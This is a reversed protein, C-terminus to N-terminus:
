GTPLPRARPKRRRRRVDRRLRQGVHQLLPRRTRALLTKGTGPPGVLLAGKPIKGGLETYKQPNKLFEVIEQVELKAGAQGAVDAFTVKNDDNKEFLKARSKGVNFIGMPGTGDGGAGGMRRMLFVWFFIILILPGFSWFFRMLDDEEQRYEVQGSFAGLAQQQSLFEDLKDPSPIQVVVYPRVGQTVQQGHFVDRIHSPEVYMQLSGDKKNVVIRQAYGQEVYNKFESYTANRSTGGTLTSTDGSLLLYGLVLAITLYLWTLSIQPGGKKKDGKKKPTNKDNSM